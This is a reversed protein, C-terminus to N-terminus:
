DITFSDSLNLDNLIQKVENTLDQAAASDVRTTFTVDITLETGSRLKPIIKTGLRNWSEHPLTGAVRLTRTTPTPPPM